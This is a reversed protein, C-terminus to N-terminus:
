RPERVSDEDAGCRHADGISVPRHSPQATTAVRDRDAPVASVREEQLSPLDPRASRPRIRIPAPHPAAPEPERKSHHTGNDHASTASGSTKLFIFGIIRMCRGTVGRRCGPRDVTYPNDADHPHPVPGHETSGFADGDLMSCVYSSRAPPAPFMVGVEAVRKKVAGRGCGVSIFGLTRRVTHSRDPEARVVTGCHLAPKAATCPRRSSRAIEAPLDQPADFAVM